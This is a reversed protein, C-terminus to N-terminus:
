INVLLDVYYRNFKHNIDSISLNPYNIILEKIKDSNPDPNDCLSMDYYYKLMTLSPFNPKSKNPHLKMVVLDISSIEGDSLEPGMTVVSYNHDPLLYCDIIPLRYLYKEPNTGRSKININKSTGILDGYYGQFQNQPPNWLGRYRNTYYYDYLNIANFCLPGIPDIPGRIGSYPEWINIFEFMLNQPIETELIPDIKYQRKIRYIENTTYDYKSINTYKKDNSNIDIPEFSWTSTSTSTSSKTNTIMRKNIYISKIM